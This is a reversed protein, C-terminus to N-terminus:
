GADVGPGFMIVNKGQRKGELARDDAKRVLDQANLGDWPYTALGGSIRLVAPAEATLKPFKAERM